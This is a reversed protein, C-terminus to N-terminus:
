PLRACRNASTLPMAAALRSRSGPSVLRFLDGCGELNLMLTRDCRHKCRLAPAHSTRRWLLSPSRGAEELRGPRERPERPPNPSRVIMKRWQHGGGGGWQRRRATGKAAVGLIPVRQRGVPRGGLVISPSKSCQSPGMPRQPRIVLPLQLAPAPLAAVVLVFRQAVMCLLVLLPLWSKAARVNSTRPGAASGIPGHHVNPQQM